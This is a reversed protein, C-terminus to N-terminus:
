MVFCKCGVDENESPLRGTKGNCKGKKNDDGFLGGQAFDFPPDAKQVEGFPGFIRSWCWGEECSTVDKVVM